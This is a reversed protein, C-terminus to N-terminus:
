YLKNKFFIQLRSTGRTGLLKAGVKSDTAFFHSFNFCTCEQQLQQLPFFFSFFPSSLFSLLFPLLLKSERKDKFCLLQYKEIEIQLLRSCSPLTLKSKRNLKAYEVILSARGQVLMLNFAVEFFHSNFLLNTTYVSLKTRTITNTKM